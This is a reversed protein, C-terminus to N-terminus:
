FAITLGADYRTNQDIRWAGDHWIGVYPGAYGVGGKPLLLPIKPLNVKHIYAASVSRLGINVIRLQDPYAKINYQNLTVPQNPGVTNYSPHASFRYDHSSPAKNLTMAPSAGPRQPDTVIAFDGGSAALGASVAQPLERGTTQVVADPVKAPSAAIQAAAERLQADSMPVQARDAAVEVGAPTAAVEQPLTTVPQRPTPEMFLACSQIVVVAGILVALALIVPRYKPWLSGDGQLSQAALKTFQEKLLTLISNLLNKLTDNM